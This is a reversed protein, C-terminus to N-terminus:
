SPAAARATAVISRWYRLMSKPVLPEILVVVIMLEGSLIPLTWAGYTHVAADPAFAALTPLFWLWSLRPSLLAIPVFLLVMYHDWVVPTATLAAMVALGFAQREYNRRGLKWSLMLLSFAVAFAVFRAPGTGLGIYMLMAVLSCGRPEGIRAVDVLIQPYATMGDFGIAMWGIFFMLLGVLACILLSRRGRAMLLWIGLPWMYLKAVVVAATAAISALHHKRLRWALAAGLLILPSINGLLVGNVTPTSVMAVLLCRADRVGLLRLAGIVAGVSCTMFLLGALKIPMLAFPVGLLLVPAPWRPSVVPHFGVGSAFAAAQQHLLGVDYPSMGHLIRWGAIYLDGNFDDQFTLGHFSLVLVVGSVTLMAVQWVFSLRALGQSDFRAHAAGTHRVPDSRPEMCTAGGAELEMTGSDVSM